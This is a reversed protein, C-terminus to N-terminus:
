SYAMTDFESDVPPGNDRNVQVVLPSRVEHFGDSWTISGFSYRDKSMKRPKLTVYYTVQEKWPSFVLVKPWIYVEVGDPEVSRVFYIAIKSHGVNRVTRRVTTTCKLDSVTISPYNMNWVPELQHMTEPCRTPPCAGISRIQEESYGISCLFLIYDRTSMDYVLGPNFAKVPNIHGAGIDFPNSSKTSAQVLIDDGYIDTNYAAM